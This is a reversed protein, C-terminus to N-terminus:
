VCSQNQNLHLLSAAVARHLNGTEKGRTLKMQCMLNSDSSQLEQEQPISSKWLEVRQPWVVAARYDVFFQVYSIQTVKQLQLVLSM